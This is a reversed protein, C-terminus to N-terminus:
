ASKAMRGNVFKTLAGALADLTGSAGNGGTVLVDPVFRV